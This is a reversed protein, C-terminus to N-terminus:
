RMATGTLQLGLPIPGEQTLVPLTVDYDGENAQRTAQNYKGLIDITEDRFAKFYERGKVVARLYRKARDRDAQLEADTTAVGMYLMQVEDRIKALPRGQPLMDRAEVSENTTVIAAARARSAGSGRRPSTAKRVRSSSRGTSRPM